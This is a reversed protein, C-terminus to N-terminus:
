NALFSQERQIKDAPIQGMVVSVFRLKETVSPSIIFPYADPLGLGRTLNNLIYTLAAWEDLIQDFDRLRELIPKKPISLAPEDARDPQASLGVALSTELADIIHMVHAWSEAWDEWPHMTAYASIFNEAWDIPAGQEYHRTLAAQYDQREDGFLGRFEELRASGAVLRDWYYHGIEHRFHGLLTRYPEHQTKRQTERYIDDAEAINITIIGDDHGTLVRAQDGNATVSDSLFQFQLGGAPDEEKTRVPLEFSLLAFLLRRKAVELRAWAELNAPDALNPLTHTLTCARCLASPDSSPIAWNCVAHEAYNSCLRFVEDTASEAMEQTVPRWLDGEEPSLTVMSMRQPVFALVQSCNLCRTNEFFVLAQCASCHFTKMHDICSLESLFLPAFRPLAPACLFLVRQVATKHLRYVKLLAPISAAGVRCQKSARSGRSNASGVCQQWFRNKVAFQSQPRAALTHM